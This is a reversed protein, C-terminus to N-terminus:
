CKEDTTQKSKHENILIKGISYEFITRDLIHDHMILTEYTKKSVM